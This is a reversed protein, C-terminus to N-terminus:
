YWTDHMGAVIMRDFLDSEFTRRNLKYTFENLYNQLFERGISHHISLLNRKANAIVTHVWPLKIHAEKQPIVMANHQEVINGLGVYGKYADSIVISTPSISQSVQYDIGIGSLDDMVIMKAFGMIRDKKHPNKQLPNPKSEVMILVKAQRQSGRGRKLEEEIIKNGLADKAPLDVVEFFADDIEINGQLKYKADRKGMSIRIKQIMYWIPEYFKYGTQRQIELASFSKTKTATMLHIVAFWTMLPIHTKEMLTGAKLSVRTGCNACKWVKITKTWYHKAGHCKECVIGEEERKLKLYAECSEETPFRKNFDLLNM